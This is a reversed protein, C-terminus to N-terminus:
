VDELFVKVPIYLFSSHSFPFSFLLYFYCVNYSVSNM